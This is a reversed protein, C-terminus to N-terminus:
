PDAAKAVLRWITQHALDIATTKRLVAASRRYPMTSAMELALEQVIATVHSYRSMGMREDLLCRGRGEGGRYQRRRVKVAGLCTQYWVERRHELELKGKRVALAEDVEELIAKYCRRGWEMAKDLILKDLGPLISKLETGSESVSTAM